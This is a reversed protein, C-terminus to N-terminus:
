HIRIVACITLQTTLEFFRARTSNTALSAFQTEKKRLFGLKMAMLLKGWFVAWYILKSNRFSIRILLHFNASSHGYSDTKYCVKKAPDNRPSNAFTFLDLPFNKSNSMQHHEEMSAQPLPAIDSFQFLYIHSHRFHAAVAEQARQLRTSQRERRAIQRTANIKNTLRYYRKM